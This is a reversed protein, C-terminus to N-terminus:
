DGRGGVDDVGATPLSPAALCRDYRRALVLVTTARTLSLDHILIVTACELPHEFLLKIPLLPLALYPWRGGDEVFVQWRDVLFEYQCRNRGTRERGFESLANGLMTPVLRRRKDVILCLCCRPPSDHAALVRALLRHRLDIVDIM